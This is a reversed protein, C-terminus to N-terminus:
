RDPAFPRGGLSQRYVRAMELAQVERSFRPARQRGRAALEAALADDSLLRRLGDGIQAQDDADVTLAADGAVEALSGGSTTLVPCGSAMAEVITLGFGECHSVLVHARAHRYLVALEDDSVLGLRKVADAIGLKEACARVAAERDPRLRGAWALLVDAGRARACAVGALMGEVNKHWDSAGVYLFFPRGALGFRDLVKQPELAPERAWREVDVGNYVRVIREAPVGLYATADRRSAESIAVVVDATHYRRKALALGLRRGGDRVGFYRDPYRAPITDHCTVIKRCDTFSMLLPTAHPDALHVARAGTARVARWLALRRAYAWRYHDRAAPSPLDASGQFSALDDTVRYAGGMGLHTLAFIRVEGLEERPLQALGCALERVYRGPGRHRSPTDLITLDLLLKM